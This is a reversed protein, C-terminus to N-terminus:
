LPDMLEIFLALSFECIAEPRLRVTAATFLSGPYSYRLLNLLDATGEHTRTMRHLSPRRGTRLCGLQAPM